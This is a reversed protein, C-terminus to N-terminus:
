AVQKEDNGIGLMKLKRHLASREMGIFVVSLILASLATLAVLATALRRRLRHGGIRAPTSM